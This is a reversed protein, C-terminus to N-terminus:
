PVSKLNGWFGSSTNPKKESTFIGEKRVQTQVVDPIKETDLKSVVEM